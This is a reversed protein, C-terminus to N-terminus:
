LRADQLNIKFSHVSDEYSYSLTFNHKLIIENVIYLGLGFSNSTATDDGKSFPELMKTINLPSAQGNNKILLTQNVLEISARKDSSYKIANDVLNKIAISFLNFDFEFHQNTITHEIVDEDLYLMDQVNEIIDILAYKKIHLTSSKSTISEIDSLDRLQSHMKDFIEILQTKDRNDDDLMIAILKGKTIPTKLEHMINRLFLIRSKQLSEITTAAVCFANAVLAIEDNGRIEDDILPEGNSFHDINKHLIQLPKMSDRIFKFLLFLILLLGFTGIGLYKPIPTMPTENLFYYMDADAKYAYFYHGNYDFIEINASKLTKQLDKDALVKKSIAMIKKAETLEIRTLSHSKLFRKMSEDCARHKQLNEYLVISQKIAGRQENIIIIYSLMVASVILLIASFLGLIKISTLISSNHKTTLDTGWDESPKSTPQKPALPSLKKAYEVSLSM